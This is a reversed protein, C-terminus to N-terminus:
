SDVLSRIPTDVSPTAHEAQGLSAEVRPSEHPVRATRCWRRGTSQYDKLTCHVDRQLTLLAQTSMATHADLASM